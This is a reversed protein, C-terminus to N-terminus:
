SIQPGNQNRNNKMVSQSLEWSGGLSRYLGIRFVVMERQAQLYSRELQQQALLATLFRTFEVTGKLYNELIQKTAKDSLDLQKRISELYERQRTEWSIANEVEELADLVIQGYNNLRESVVARNRDVEAKRKGADFIPALLNAAMNALWNDFLDRVEEASTSARVSLSIKPFREAIAEAVKQDAAQVRLSAARIDPRRKVWDVPLGTQPFPPLPPLVNGQPAKFIEPVQGLLVALRHEEEKIDAQIRIRNGKTSELVQRQQLIDTASLQGKNFRLTIAALYDKNTKIQKDLLNLQGRLEVLRYWTNAVEASLTIAAASLDEQVAHVDLEAATQMSRIRGWLDIEYGASLGVTFKNTYTDSMPKRKSWTRSAGAEFNLAPWFEVGSKRAEAYAQQLRSWTSKLSFNEKMAREILNNLQSDNFVEWWKDPLNGDGQKSFNEPLTVPPDKKTKTTATCGAFLMFGFFLVIGVPVLFFCNGKKTNIKINKVWDVSFFSYRRM